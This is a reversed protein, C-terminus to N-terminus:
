VKTIDQVILCKGIILTAKGGGADIQEIDYFYTDPAIDTDTITPAFSIQGNVADVLVGAITFQQNDTNAPDKESNVTLKFSFGSVDIAIGASDQRVFGKANSDGRGWCITKTADKTQDIACAM